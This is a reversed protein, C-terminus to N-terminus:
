IKISRHQCRNERVKQGVLYICAGYAAQSTDSFGHLIRRIVPDNSNTVFYKRDIVVPKMDALPEIIENWRSVLEGIDDDWDIETRRCIDQFLIKFKIVIPQLFGIPDYIGAITRLINRKTPKINSAEKLSSKLDFIM